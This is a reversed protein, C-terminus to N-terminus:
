IFLSFPSSIPQAQKLQQLLNNTELVLKEGQKIAEELQPQLQLLDALELQNQRELDKLQWTLKLAPNIEEEAQNFQQIIRKM